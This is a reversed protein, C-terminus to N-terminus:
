DGKQAVYAEWMKGLLATMSIGRTVSEMHIALKLDAPLNVNLPLKEKAAAPELPKISAPSGKVSPKAGKPAAPKKIEVPM